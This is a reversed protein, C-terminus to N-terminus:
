ATKVRVIEVVNRMYGGPNWRPTLRQTEGITNMAMCAMEYSRGAQAHFPAEWQRFSYKGYDKGLRADSWNKGGDASFLVRTIGHGSDFAVGKAVHQGPHIRAGDAFNTVFSRISLRNIPVSSVGKEGPEMCACDNDPIRYAPKMWFTEDVKNLVEVDSLMKMWYTGYWGPVILRVPYGNLLPLPQGNMSYAVLVDPNMVTDMNLAKRFDPTAPLIPGELGNFKVQVADNEVGAKNLIDRLRVGKWRANGMAGNAWQGGAVRPSFLGRSNGACQLVATLEVSEFDRQLDAISLSLEKRVRGSVKIRHTAADVSTPVGALHWRVFFADNPTIVGENFVSFPTELQVPRETLVILPRKQPFTAMHREGNAFPLMVSDAANALKVGGLLSLGGLAGARFFNRRSNDLPTKDLETNSPDPHHPSANNPVSTRKHNM